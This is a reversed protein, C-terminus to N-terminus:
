NLFFGMTATENDVAKILAEPDPDFAVDGKSAVDVGLCEKLIVYNLIAVDLSRYEKPKESISKDLVKVNKLRLLWFRGQKYMGIVHETQGSKELLFFFRTKDKIEEADFYPKLQEFFRNLNFDNGVKILRHIPLVTLGKLDTNTFYALVYNFSEEGTTAGSEKLMADRFLCAVEYRHHGDAIFIDEGEMRVQIKELLEPASIRWVKHVIRDEDVIDICPKGFSAINEWISQIVRKKDPFLVFIPSLNARVAHLLKLRDEKPAARTHEHAYVASSKSDGLRLLAIFGLRTRKEGKLTYQQSYFYISPMADQVFIGEEVWARFRAGALKYKDDSSVDNSLLIHILNHPDREHLAQQKAPSIVDYPPCVVSALDPIKKQNFLLGKFAKVKTM